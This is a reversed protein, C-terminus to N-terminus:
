EVIIRAQKQGFLKWKIEVFYECVNPHGLGVFRIVWVIIPSDMGNKGIKRDSNRWNKVM